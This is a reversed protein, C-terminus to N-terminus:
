PATPKRSSINDAITSTSPTTAWAASSAAEVYPGIGQNNCCHLGDANTSIMAGPAPKIVCKVFSCADCLMTGYGSSPSNALELSEFLCYSSDIMGAPTRHAVRFPISFKL